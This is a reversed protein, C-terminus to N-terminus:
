CAVLTSRARCTQRWAPQHISRMRWTTAVMSRRVLLVLALGCLLVYGLAIEPAPKFLRYLAALPLIIGPPRYATPRGGPAWCYCGENALTVAPRHYSSEDNKLEFDGRLVESHGITAVAVLRLLLAIAFLAVAVFKRSAM